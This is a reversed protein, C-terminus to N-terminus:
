ELTVSLDTVELNTTPVLKLGNNGEKVFASVDKTANIAKTDIYTLHGNVYIEATKQSLDTFLFKLLIKNNGAIIARAQSESLTFFYTPNSPQKLNLKFLIQDIDYSATTQKEFSSKFTLTNEGTVLLNPSVEQRILDGDCTPTQSYLQHGNISASLISVDAIQACPYTASFRLSASEVNSNETSSLVFSSRSEERSTDTIDATIEIHSLSYANASWFKAGVGATSFNIDNDGEKLLDKPISYLPNSEIIEGEFVKKNNITIIMPGNGKEVTFSLQVNNANSLDVIKFSYGVKQKSFWSNKVSLSEMKRLTKAQTKTFLVVNPILKEVTTSSLYDLKGPHELLLINEGVVLSGNITKNEGLLRARDAPPLFLIYLLILGAIIAVLTAAKGGEQGRKQFFVM